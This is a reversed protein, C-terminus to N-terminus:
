EETSQQKRHKLEDCTKAYKLREEKVCNPLKIELFGEIASCVVGHIQTESKLPNASHILEEIYSTCLNVVFEIPKGKKFHSQFDICVYAIPGSCLIFAKTRPIAGLLTDLRDCLETYEKHNILNLVLNPFSANLTTKLYEMCDSFIRQSFAIIEENDQAKLLILLEKEYKALRGDKPYEEIAFVQNDSM